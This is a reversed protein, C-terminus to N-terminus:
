NMELNDLIVEKIENVIDGIERNNRIVKDACLRYLEYREEYLKIIRERGEKLLPRKSIDVDGLLEELPRDIFIIFSEEKLVDINETRKIVGGGSSIIVKGEKALERCALSEFDRFYNEGQEFLEPITKSTMNEIYNDMDIFNIKLEESVLRGITSKGCGPMGIFVVKNKM